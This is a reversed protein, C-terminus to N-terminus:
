GMAYNSADIQIEFPQRLNPLSLIPASSIKKKLTDFDKQKKGGWKFVQKISTV